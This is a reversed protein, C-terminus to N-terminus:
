WDAITAVLGNSEKFGLADTADEAFAQMYIRLGLFAPDAPVKFSQALSQEGDLSGEPRSENVAFCQLPPHVLLYRLGDPGRHFVEAARDRAVSLWAASGNTVGRVIVEFERGPEPSGDGVLHLHLPAAKKSPVRYEAFEQLSSLDALYARGIDVVIGPCGQLLDPIGDGTVDGSTISLVGSYSYDAGAPIKYPLFFRTLPALDPGWFINMEGPYANGQEDFRGRLWASVITEDSGDDNLDLCEVDVGFEGGHETSPPNTLRVHTKRSLDPGYYIFVVGDGVQGSTGVAQPTGILIEDYGDGNLDGAGLAEGFRAFAHDDPNRRKISQSFDPGFFVWVQGYYFDIPSYPDAVLVDDYHDGNVDCAQVTLGFFTPERVPHKIIQVTDLTPGLFIFVAGFDVGDTVWANGHILDDFGDANVDGFTISEHSASDAGDWPQELVRVRGLDPGHYVWLAPRPASRKRAAVVLDGFGDADLDRIGICSGFFGAEIPEPHRIVHHVNRDSGMVVYVCGVIILSGDRQDPASVAMDALGDGDIDGCAVDRGMGFDLRVLGQGEVPPTLVLTQEIEPEGNEPPWPRGHSAQQPFVPCVLVVTDLGISLLLGICFQKGRM